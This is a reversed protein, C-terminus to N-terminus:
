IMIIFFMGIISNYLLLTSFVVFGHGGFSVFYLICRWKLETDFYISKDLIEKGHSYITDKLLHYQM